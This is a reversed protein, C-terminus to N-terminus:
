LGAAQLSQMFRGADQYGIVRVGQVERGQADFFVIGPPGFLRFRKLLERDAPTNATVDAQLMLVGALRARVQPDTFTFREMEKCSVCWDAYFDLLVPRGAAQVRQELATLSAVREFHVNGPDAQPAARAVAFHALPQLPDRAGSAAGILQMVGLLALIMGIGKFFRAWGIRPGPHLPEFVHLYVASVLLLTGWALMTLWVPLAPQVIWLAVGLLMVGFVHKVQEMWGGTRPLVHGASVGVLLLPVSMGLALTFLALGGLLADRSQSIYLLAGALPAAVCPSVVLASVGGMVFVGALKGGGQGPRAALGDRWAAPLQLEYFGFMSLALLALAAAFLGLVWPQQLWAALGEGLLGAAVGLATYVLAMGLAYSLALVLGRMRTVSRGEGVIISSLIPVMPLVCPTFSLLVGALFFLLVVSAIHGSHLAGALRGEESAAAPEGTAAPPSAPSSGGSLLDRLVGGTAPPAPASADFALLEAANSGGGFAALRVSVASQVPPYCLGKDACGQSRAELQFPGSAAQVPLVVRVTDRLIEVDRGFAEDFKVQGKPRDPTGLQVPAPATFRFQEGYMYYGPAIRYTLEVSREDLARVSLQFAQHPELFDDAAWAPAALCLVAALSAVAAAATHFHRAWGMSAMGGFFGKLM